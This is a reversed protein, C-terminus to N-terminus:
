FELQHYERARMDPYTTEPGVVWPCVRYARALTLWGWAHAAWLGM